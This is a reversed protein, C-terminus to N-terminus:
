GDLDTVREPGANVGQNRGDNGPAVVMSLGAGMMATIVLAAPFGIMRISFMMMVYWLIALNNRLTVVGFYYLLAVVFSWGLAFFFLNRLRGWKGAPKTSIGWWALLPILLGLSFPNVALIYLGGLGIVLFALSHIQEAAMPKKGFRQALKRGIYIFIALGVVFLIVAPWRPEYLPEDKQAAPYLHYKDMLGMAVMLYTLLISALLPLWLGLFHPLAQRWAALRQGSFKKSKTFAGAFFVGLLAIFIMWLPLGRLVLDPKEFYLYPGTESPIEHEARALLERILVEATRGSLLLVEASQYKLTDEPSHFTKYRMYLGYEDDPDVKGTLGMAPVGAAVMPGQDMFSVPVMQTAWQMFWSRIKPAQVGAACAADQALRQLWLAGVGRFQGIPELDIDDYWKKGLNDLSIGAIIQRTDPHNQIYHRSGLMGYEEADTSVFVLSYRPTGEAALISALQLLIAIGSGDNDAGQITDPSQDHHAVILIERPSSGPLRCVVNQMDMERSYNIIQWEETQCTLGYEEFQKRLWSAARLNNPQGSDRNPYHTVFDTLTDMAQEGSFKLEDQYARGEPINIEPGPRCGALVLIALMLILFVACSKMKSM